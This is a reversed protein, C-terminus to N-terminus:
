VGTHGLLIPVWGLLGSTGGIGGLAHQWSPKRQWRFIVWLLQPVYRTVDKTSDTWGFSLIRVLVLVATDPAAEVSWHQVKETCQNSPRSISAAKDLSFHGWSLCLSHHCLLVNGSHDKCQYSLGSECASLLHYFIGFLLLLQRENSVAILEMNKKNYEHNEKKGGSQKNVTPM